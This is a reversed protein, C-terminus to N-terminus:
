ILNCVPQSEDDRNDNEYHYNGYKRDLDEASYESLKEPSATVIVTTVSTIVFTVVFTM